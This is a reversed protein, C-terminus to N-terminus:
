FVNLSTFSISFKLEGRRGCSPAPLFTLIDEKEVETVDEEVPWVFTSSKKIRGLFKVTPVGNTNSVVKGVYQKISKKGKFQVLVWKDIQCQITVCSESFINEDEEMEDKEKSM